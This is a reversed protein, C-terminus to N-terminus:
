KKLISKYIKPSNLIEIAAALQNDKSLKRRHIIPNDRGIQRVMLAEEIHWKITESNENLVTKKHKEVINELTTVVSALELSDTTSWKTRLIELATSDITTDEVLGTYVKFERLKEGAATKYDFGVSDAFQFFEDLIPDTVDFGGSLDISDKEIRPYYYNAFKFFLDKLLFKQLIYGEHEKLVITDPIVGGGGYVPRGANTYFIEPEVKTTDKEKGKGKSKGDKIGNEPRNICRGSPTYYFATTMKIYKDQSKDVPLITQVSGKGFTTDGLVVGRDWDQVAGSVIEAASASAGNVMVVLPMSKPIAPKFRSHFPKKSNETRGKTFVVLKDEPLFVNAVDVSKNLLGGPNFRLDFIMAKMGLAMLSDTKQRVKDGADESFSNLRVYGINNELIGAFPVSKIEIVDRTITYPILGPEGERRISITVDTGPVGRMRDVAENLTLDRTIEDDIKIIQDGSRIGAREAPTGAIPTMVTLVEDRISIQIGLGGFEGKTHVRLEEYDKPDYFATHPDLIEISGDIAKRILNESDIPTVYNSHIRQLTKELIHLNSFFADNSTKDKNNGALAMDSFLGIFITVVILGTWVSSKLVTNSKM